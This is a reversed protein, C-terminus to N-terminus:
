LICINNKLFTNTIKLYLVFCALNPTYSTCYGRLDYHKIAQPTKQLQIQSVAYLYQLSETNQIMQDWFM